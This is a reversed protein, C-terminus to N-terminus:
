ERAGAYLGSDDDDDDSSSSSDDTGLTTWDLHAVAERQARSRQQAAREVRRAEACYAAWLEVSNNHCWTRCRQSPSAAPAEHAMRGASDGGGGHRTPESVSRGYRSVM